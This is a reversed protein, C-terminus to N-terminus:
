QLFMVLCMKYIRLHTALSEINAIAKEFIQEMVGGLAALYSRRFVKM